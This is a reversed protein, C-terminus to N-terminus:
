TEKDANRNFHNMTMEVGEKVWLELSDAARVTMLRADEREDDRFRGLVWSTADMRGPPRGIGMRLRPIEEHGLSQIISKLGNQGGASGQQKWRIRGLPLNMDDCLVVIEEADPQYFKVFQWVSEGSRNMYTLPAILLVKEAGIVIEQYDAQFKSQTKGAHFRDGLESLVDFGVNHRTGAYKQGPNGLGFVLRM